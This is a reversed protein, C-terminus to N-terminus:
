KKKSPEVETVNKLMCNGFGEVNLEIFYEKGEELPLQKFDMLQLKEGMTVFTLANYFNGEKKKSEKTEIEKLLMPEKAIFKM